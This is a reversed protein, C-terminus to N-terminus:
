RDFHSHLAHSVSERGEIQAGFRAVDDAAVVVQQVKTGKSGGVTMRPGQRRKIASGSAQSRSRGREEERIEEVGEEPSKGKESGRTEVAKGKGKENAREEEERDGVQSGSEEVGGEETGTGAEETGAGGTKGVEPEQPDAMEDAVGALVSGTGATGGEEAEEGEVVQQPGPSDIGAVSSDGVMSGEHSGKEPEEDSALEDLIAEVEVISKRSNGVL